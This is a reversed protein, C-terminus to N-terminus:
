RRKSNFTGVPSIGSCQGHTTYTGTIAGSQYVLVSVTTTDPCSSTFLFNGTLPAEHPYGSTAGVAGVTGSFNAAHKTSTTLSGDVKSAAQTLRLVGWVTAQTSDTPNFSVDYVGAVQGSPPATPGGSGSNCAALLAALLPVVYCMRRVAASMKTDEPYVDLDIQTQYPQVRKLLYCVPTLRM